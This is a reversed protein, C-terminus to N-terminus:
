ELAWGSFGQSIFDPAPCRLVREARDIKLTPRVRSQSGNVIKVEARRPKVAGRNRCGNSDSAQKKWIGFMMSYTNWSIIKSFCFVWNHSFIYM